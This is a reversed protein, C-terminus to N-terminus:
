KIRNMAGGDIVIQSGTVYSSCPSALYLALGKIDEPDGIRGILSQEEFAKRDAPIKLRGGAINTMFPGPSICNVLIGFMGLEMAMQRVFHDVGAKAPMYSTGVIAENIQAAISSTVIIRGGGSKKMHRASNKVTTYVSTLNVEIGRDWQADDLADIAGEPIRGGETSLFGPGPDIGANAFVVDIRGHREAVADFAEQMRPRDSVDVVQGWVDGGNAKIEAVVTELTAPNLDFICVRAGNDAM